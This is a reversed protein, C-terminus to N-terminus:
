GGFEGWRDQWRKPLDVLVAGEEPDDRVGAVVAVGKIFDGPLFVRGVEEPLKMLEDTALRNRPLGKAIGEEDVLAVLDPLLPVWEIDGGNLERVAGDWGAVRKLRVKNDPTFVAALFEENNAM